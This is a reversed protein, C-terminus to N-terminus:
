GCCGKRRPDIPGKVESKDFPVLVLLSRLSLFSVFALKTLYQYDDSPLFGLFGVFGLFGLAGLFRSNNAKEM